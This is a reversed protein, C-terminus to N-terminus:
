AVRFVDREVYPIVEPRLGEKLVLDVQRHLLDEIFFRVDCYRDYTVPGEFEVLVDIDSDDRAEDRAVSGFLALSKVGFPALEARHEQILAVVESRKM